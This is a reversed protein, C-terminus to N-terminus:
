LHFYDELIRAMSPPILTSVFLGPAYTGKKPVYSLYGFTKTKTSNKIPLTFGFPLAANDPLSVFLGVANVGIYLTIQTNNQQPFTLGLSPLEGYGAPMAPLTDGNPLRGAPLFSAGKIVYKIPVRVAFKMRGSPDILPSFSIDPYSSFSGSPSFLVGSPLPIMIIFEGRTKDFDFTLANNNSDGSEVRGKLDLQAIPDLGVGPSAPNSNDGSTTEPTLAALAKNEYQSKACNLLFVGSLILTIPLLINKM